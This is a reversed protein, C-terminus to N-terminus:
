WAADSWRATSWRATSWRATSWRATSWRATSWEASSWRATSWRATTWPASRWDQADAWGNGTWPVGVWDGGNWATGNASATAWAVANWATGTVDVEGSLEAGSPDVLHYGGRAAELSGLGTARPFRQVMNALDRASVRGAAIAAVENSAAVLNLQGAGAAYSSNNPLPQATSVLAAKVQDPTLQPDQQLLLAAAGSVVAAAQSTGSGRFLRGSTDGAVLGSPHNVDVYSGPDRLSVISSGPAILDPHRIANGGNSFSAVGPKTYGDTATGYDLAGVAIIYPDIAPDTLAAANGDNGASVVVVIGHHWANEVAAALPDLQYSQASETGFSLNVVRVNMGNDNRHQSVWDLAAIVQSIDTSGDTTALKLALLQADPAVGLETSASTVIPAGTRPKTPTPDHAAIIGALYTGHGFTDRDGLGSAAEISLDPGQVVKGPGDLGPVATVGSDLLAVTVGQGTLARGNVDTQTWLTRAGIRNTVTFLSGPDRAPVNVGRAGAAYADAQPDGWAAGQWPSHSAVSTTTAVGTPAASLAPSFAMATVVGLLGAAHRLRRGVFQHSHSRAM